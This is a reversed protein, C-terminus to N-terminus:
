QKGSAPQYVAKMMRKYEDLSQLGVEKRRKDVNAEDEIPSPVLEGNELKFQTGYIQKKGEAVLVRDTLYAVNPKSVEGKEAAKTMFELCRKQFAPNADAHQVLLWAAGAGDKGVLSKGPWGYKKLIEEMRSTNRADVEQMKTLIAPGKTEAILQNRIEQDVKEMQLLELRLERNGITKLYAELAARCKQVVAEWRNDTHLSILDTDEQLHNANQFGAAIALDLCHFANGKKGALAYSCAADYLTGADKIGRKIAEGYLEASKAYQKQEYAEAAQNSLTEADQAKLPGFFLCTLVLGMFFHKGTM